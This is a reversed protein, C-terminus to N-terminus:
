LQSKDLDDFWAHQLAQKASIRKSPQYVLMKSLLDVGLADLKPVAAGISRRPWKPFDRKFDPLQSVGAWLEDDPTGLSKFIKFLEDIESEGPWLARKNVM